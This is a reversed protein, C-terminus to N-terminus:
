VDEIREYVVNYNIGSYPRSLCNYLGQLVIYRSCYAALSYDDRKFRREVITGDKQQEKSVLVCNSNHLCLGCWRFKDGLKNIAVSIATHWFYSIDHEVDNSVIELVSKNDTRKDQEYCKVEQREGSAILHGEINKVYFKDLLIPKPLYRPEEEKFNIFEINPNNQEFVVLQEVETEDTITWEIIPIGSMRKKETCKHKFCIEVFIPINKKDNSLLAVDAVFENYRYEEECSEYYQKLDIEVNGFETCDRVRKKITCNHQHKCKNKSYLIIPFHEQENFMEIVKRKGLIHIYTERSCHFENSKHSFYHMRKNGLAVKLEGGCVICRFRHSKRLDKNVDDICIFNNSDDIYSKRFNTNRTM